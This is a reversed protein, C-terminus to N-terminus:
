NELISKFCYEYLFSPEYKRIYHIYDILYDKHNLNNIITLIDDVSNIFSTDLITARTGVISNSNIIKRLLLIEKELLSQGLFFKGIINNLIVHDYLKALAYTCLDVKNLSALLKIWKWNVHEIDMIKEVLYRDRIYYVKYGRKSRRYFKINIGLLQCIKIFTTITQEKKIEIELTDFFINKGRRKIKIHGEAYIVGSLFSLLEYYTM